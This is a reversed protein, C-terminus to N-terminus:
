QKAPTIEPGRDVPWLEWRRVLLEALESQLQIRGEQPSVDFAENVKVGNVYVQVHADKSVVDIRTWLGLESDKDQTGRFGITDTWDPDRGYWNVRGVEKPTLKKREGKDSWVTEGDRDQKVTSTLSLVVPKGSEDDGPVFVFDGVGGEIIQVEIAPMWIGDYGGLKGTSNILLGSDRAATKREHWTRDGWKYELVLHYDRFKDRTILAGLGDGSIHLIGDAVHFVKRPDELKSDKLWTDLGDLSTGDFLLVVSNDPSKAKTQSVSQGFSVQGAFALVFSMLVALRTVLHFM